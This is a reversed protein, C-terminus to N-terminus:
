AHGERKNAKTAFGMVEKFYQSKSIQCVTAQWLNSPTQCLGQHIIFSGSRMFYDIALLVKGCKEVPLVKRQM